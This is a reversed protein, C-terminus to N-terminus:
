RGNEIARMRFFAIGPELTAKWASELDPGWKPDHRGATKLLCDLWVDYLPSTIGLERHRLAIHKIERWAISEPGGQAGVAMLYLSDALVRKQREFDTNKFKEAVAPDASTFRDYFEKLFFPNDLCRKLSDRFSDVQNATM